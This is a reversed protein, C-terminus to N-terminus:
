PIQPKKSIKELDVGYKDKMYNIVIPYKQHIIPYKAKPCIVEISDASYRMCLHIYDIFIQTPGTSSISSLKSLNFNLASNMIGPFGRKLYYNPDNETGTASKVATVFDLDSSFGEPVKINGMTVAKKYIEKLMVGRRYFYEFSNRPRYVQSSYSITGANNNKTWPRVGNWTFCWFDLGAYNYTTASIYELYGVVTKQYISDALYFYPPLVKKTIQPTLNGFIQDVAFMVAEKQQDQPIAYGVKGFGPSTWSLNFDVDKFDKYIIKVGFQENVRAAELDFDSNGQPFTFRESGESKSPIIPDEKYCSLALLSAVVIVIYTKINKM